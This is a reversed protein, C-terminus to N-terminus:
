EKEIEELKKKKSLTEQEKQTKNNEQDGLEKSIDSLEEETAQLKEKIKKGILRASEDFFLKEQNNLKSLKEFEDSLNKLTAIKDLYEMQEKKLEEESDNMEKLLSEDRNIEETLEKIEALKKTLIEGRKRID